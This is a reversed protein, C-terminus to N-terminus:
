KRSKPRLRKDGIWREAVKQFAISFINSCLFYLNLGSSVNLFLFTLVVPMIMFIKAQTPDSGPTMPTMKQQILMTLGMIIPLLYYPDKASLDQIWGWFPAQRLEISSALLSYFAFLIPMQLILPLCGGLPNVKHEKYIAMIEQNMQARKPDTKKFRSYKEQIEKIKPQVVQLKKMSIVQKLRFPFLALTLLFTLLIIAAGYNHVYREIWILGALLPRVLISFFGYDIAGSLDARKVAELAAQLKPGMYLLYEAVGAQPVTVRVLNRTVEKGDLGTVTAPVMQIEFGPVPREPIAIITFYLMDLGVWRIDGAVSQVENEDKPPNSRQVKGGQSSIATLHISPNLFHETDPGIDQGVLFRNPIPQGDRRCASTLEVLYNDKEFRLRKEVALPGRQLKLIIEVPPSLEGAPEASGAVEVEYYEGNVAATLEPDDLMLTGPLVFTDRARRPPIMEFPENRASAYKKLSWSSILAGRNDVEARYIEGDVIIKRAAAITDKGGLAREAPQSPQDPTRPPAPAPPIEQQASRQAAPATKGSRTMERDQYYQFLFLIAISLAIAALVRKEM